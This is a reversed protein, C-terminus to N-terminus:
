QHNCNDRNDALMESYAPFVTRGAAAMTEAAKGGPQTCLLGRGSFAHKLRGNRRGAIEIDIGGNGAAESSKERPGPRVCGAANAIVAVASHWM